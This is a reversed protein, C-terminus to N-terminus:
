IMFVDKICEKVVDDCNLMLTSVDPYQTATRVQGTRDLIQDLFRLLDGELFTTNELIEFFSARRFLPKIIGTLEDIREFREEKALFKHRSIKKKLDRSEKDRMYNHIKYGKRPEYVLAAILLLAQYVSLDSFFDTAFVEGFVLEDVFIGAAFLGKETLKDDKIYGFRVLRKYLVGFRHKIQVPDRIGQQFVHFNKALILERQDEEHRQVLNLVTNYSLRFKSMIPDADGYVLEKIRRYNFRPRYIMSVVFGEKDIGRRGARGAMQFYEKTTLSRFGHGDFKRLSEFCVTKAPMNIGVAFTETAYLVNILGKAFLDEVLNKLVPLLGAHHFGIGKSLAQRLVKTSHLRRADDPVDKLYDRVVSSIEPNASFINKKRLEDANKECARRSFCFFLIPTKTKLDNVCDVHDPADVKEFMRKGLAKEYSPIRKLDRIQELSALGLDVDYFSHALPVSRKFHRICDVQHHKIKAMWAALEDANPVTASLCIFRVSDPSFIISEEWVYGREPDDIYHIEDFVVHSIDKVSPDNILCMNRYIETTMIRVPATPNIVVDGTLLGIRDEGYQRCFDKFKQNSLAKIPATYVIKSKGLQKDIMYEAILTKGSGTPASVVVSKGADIARVAEVQFEDLTLGRFKM